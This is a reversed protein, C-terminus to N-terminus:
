IDCMRNQSAHAYRMRTHHPESNLLCMHTLLFVSGQSGQRKNKIIRKRSPLVIPQSPPEIGRRSSITLSFFFASFTCKTITCSILFQVAKTDCRRTTTKEKGTYASRSTSSAALHLCQARLASFSLSGMTAHSKPLYTTVYTHSPSVDTENHTGM